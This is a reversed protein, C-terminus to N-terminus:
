TLSKIWSEIGAKIDDRVNRYVSLVEEDTGQAMVPDPYSWHLMHKANGPFRPCIADSAEACLTIVYDFDQGAFEDVHKSRQNSIDIGLDSMVKIANPNVYCPKSGASEVEMDSRMHKLFGEAMQSRCSNGICLFLVRM